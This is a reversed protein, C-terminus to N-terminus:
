GVRKRCKAELGAGDKILLMWMELNIKGSSGCRRLVFYGRGRKACFRVPLLAQAVRSARDCVAQRGGFRLVVCIIESERMRDHVEASM